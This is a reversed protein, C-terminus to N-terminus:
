RLKFREKVKALALDVVEQRNRGEVRAITAGPDVNSVHCHYREGIKYSTLKLKVGNLELDRSDFDETRLM